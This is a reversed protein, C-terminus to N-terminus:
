TWREQLDHAMPTPVLVLAHGEGSLWVKVPVGAAMGQLLLPRDTGVVEGTDAAGRKPLRWTTAWSLFDRVVAEECRAACWGADEVAIAHRDGTLVADVTASDSATSDSIILVEDPALRLCTTSPDAGLADLADPTAVVRRAAIPDFDPM